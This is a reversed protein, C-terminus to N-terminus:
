SLSVGARDLAYLWPGFLGPLCDTYSTIVATCCLTRWTGGDRYTGARRGPQFFARNCVVVCGAPSVRIVLGPFPNCRFRFFRVPDGPCRCCHGIDGDCRYRHRRHDPLFEYMATVGFLLMVFGFAFKGAFLSGVIIAVYVTGSLTRQLM